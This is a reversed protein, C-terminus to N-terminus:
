TGSPLNREKAKQINVQLGTEAALKKLYEWNSGGSIAIPTRTIYVDNACLNEHYGNTHIVHYFTYKSNAFRLLETVDSIHKNRVYLGKGDLCISVPETLFLLRYPNYNFLRPSSKFRVAWQGKKNMNISSVQETVFMRKDGYKELDVIMCQRSDM